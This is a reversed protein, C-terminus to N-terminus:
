DVTMWSVSSRPVMGNQGAHGGDEARVSNKIKWFAEKNRFGGM